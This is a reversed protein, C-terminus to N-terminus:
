RDKLSSVVDKPVQNVNLYSMEDIEITGKYNGLDPSVYVRVKQINQMNVVKLKPTIQFCSNFVKLYYEDYQGNSVVKIEQPRGNSEAGFDDVFTFRLTPDINGTSKVKVKIYTNDYLNVGGVNGVFSSWDAGKVDANIKLASTGQSLNLGTSESTWATISNFDSMVGADKGKAWTPEMAPVPGWKNGIIEKVEAPLDKVFSIEDVIIDGTFNAEQNMNFFVIIRNVRTPDFSGTSSQLDNSTETKFVSYYDKFDSGGIEFDRMNKGDILDTSNENVDIFRAMINSKNMGTATTARARVKIIPTQTIDVEAFIKGFCDWQGDNIHVNLKNSSFKSVSVKEPKCPWWLDIAGSFDDLVFDTPLVGSGNPNITSSIEDIYFTGTWPKGGPNIFAQIGVIERANVDANDPYTQKFKKFFDYIYIRYGASDIIVSAPSANTQMGKSDKLDIRLVPFDTTGEEVKMKVKLFPAKSFDMQDTEIGFPEYNAGVGSAKVKMSNGVKMMSYKGDKWWEGLSGKFDFLVTEGLVLGANESPKYYPKDVRTEVKAPEFGACSTLFVGVLSSYVINKLNIKMKMM